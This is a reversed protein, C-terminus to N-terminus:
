IQKVYKFTPNCTLVCCAGDLLLSAAAVQQQASYGCVLTLNNQSRRRLVKCEFQM